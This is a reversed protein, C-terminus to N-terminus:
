CNQYIDAQALQLIEHRGGLVATSRPGRMRQVDRLGRDGLGNGIQFHQPVLNQEHAAMRPPQFEGCCAPHALALRLHQQLLRAGKFPRAAFFFGAQQAYATQGRQRRAVQRLDEHAHAGPVGQHLDLRVLGIGLRQHLHELAACQVGGQEVVQAQGAGHPHLGDGGEDGIRQQWGTMRQGRAGAQRQGRQRLLGEDQDVQRVAALIEQRQEALRAHRRADRVLCRGDLHHAGQHGVAQAHGQQGRPRHAVPAIVALANGAAAQSTGEDRLRHHQGVGPLLAM